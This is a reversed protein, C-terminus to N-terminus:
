KGTKRNKKLEGQRVQIIEGLLQGAALFLDDDTKIREDGELWNSQLIIENAKLPNRQMVSLAAGLSTRSPKKIFGIAHESGEDDLPIKLMYVTEVRHRKAVEDLLALDPDETHTKKTTENM